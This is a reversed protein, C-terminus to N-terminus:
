PWHLLADAVKFNSCPLSWLEEFATPVDLLGTGHDNTHLVYQSVCSSIFVLDVRCTCEMIYGMQQTVKESLIYQAREWHGRKQDLEDWGNQKRQFALLPLLPICWQEFKSSWTLLATRPWMKGSVIWMIWKWVLNRTLSMSCHLHLHEDQM